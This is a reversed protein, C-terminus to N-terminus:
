DQYVNFYAYLDELTMAEVQARTLFAQSITFVPPDNDIVSVNITKTVVNGSTDTVELNITYNGVTDENGSYNESTVVISSTLDGDFGDSATYNALVNDFSEAAGVIYTIESDGYITPPMNDDVNVTRTTVTTNGSSDTATYTITYQGLVGVNVTGTISVTCESDYNDVCSAGEELYNDGFELDIISEGTLTISPATTDQLTVNLIVQNAANGQSDMVDYTVYYTGLISNDYTSSIEPTLNSDHNDLVDVLNSLNDGFNAAEQTGFELYVDSDGKLSIVPKTVDYVKAVITLTSTNGSSDTVSFVVNYEGPINENGTLEDTTVVISSTLDGDYGDSASLLVQIDSVTELVDMNIPYIGEYGSIVPFQEEPTLVDIYDIIMSSGYVGSKSGGYKINTIELIYRNNTSDYELNSVPINITVTENPSLYDLSYEIDNFYLSAIYYSSDTSVSKITVPLTELGENMYEPNTIEIPVWSTLDYYVNGTHTAEGYYSAEQGLSFEYTLVKETVDGNSTLVFDVVFEEDPDIDSITYNLIVYDDKNLLSSLLYTSNYKLDYETKSEVSDLLGYISKPFVYTKLYSSSGVSVNANDINFAYSFQIQKTAEDYQSAYLKYDGHENIEDVLLLDSAVTTLPVDIDHTLEEILVTPSTEDTLYLYYGGASVPAVNLVFDYLNINDINSVTVKQRAVGNSDSNETVSVKINSTNDYDDPVMLGKDAVYFHFWITRNTLQDYEIVYEISDVSESVKLVTVHDNSYEDIYETPLEGAYDEFTIDSETLTGSAYVSSTIVTTLAITFILMTSLLKKM